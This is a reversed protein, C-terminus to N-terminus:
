FVRKLRFEVQFVGSSNNAKFSEKEFRVAYQVGDMRSTYLFTTLSGKQDDYFDIYNQLKANTLAPSKCTFGILTADTILRMESAQNEYQTEAVNYDRIEESMELALTFEDM